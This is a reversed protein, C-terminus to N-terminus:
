GEPKMVSMVEIDLSLYKPSGDSNQGYGALSATGLRYRGSRTVLFVAEYLAELEDEATDMDQSGSVLTLTGEWQISSLPAEPVPQYTRTVAQAIPRKQILDLPRPSRIIRPRKNAPIATFQGTISDLFLTRASM